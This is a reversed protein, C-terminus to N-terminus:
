KPSHNKIKYDTIKYSDIGVCPSLNHTLNKQFLPTVRRIFCVNDNTRIVTLIYYKLTPILYRVQLANLDNGLCMAALTTFTEDILGVNGGAIMHTELVQFVMDLAGSSRCRSRGAPNRLVCTKIAKLASLIIKQAETDDSNKNLANSRRVLAVILELAGGGYLVVKSKKEGDLGFILKMITELTVVIKQNRKAIEEPIEKVDKPVISLLSAQTYFKSYLDVHPDGRPAASATAANDNSDSSTM